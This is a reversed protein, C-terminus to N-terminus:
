SRQWTISGNQISLSVTTFLQSSFLLVLSVWTTLLESVSHRSAMPLLLYRMLLDRVLHFLCVSLLHHLWPLHSMLLLNRMLLLHRVIPFICMLLLCDFRPLHSILLLHHMLLLHSVLFHRMLLLLHMLLLCHMLLLHHRCHTSSSSASELPWTPQNIWDPAHFNSVHPPVGPCSTPPADLCYLRCATRRHLPFAPLASLAHYPMRTTSFSGPHESIM